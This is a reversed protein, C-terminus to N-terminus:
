LVSCTTISFSWRISSSSAFISSLIVWEGLEFQILKDEILRKSSQKLSKQIERVCLCRLGEGVDGPFTIADEVVEEAFFHSKGSGRGGWIGKYRAPYLLPEFVEATKRKLTSSRM